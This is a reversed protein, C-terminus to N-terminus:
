RPRMDGPVDTGSQLAAFCVRLPDGSPPQYWAVLNARSARLSQRRMSVLVNPMLTTAMSGPPMRVSHGPM